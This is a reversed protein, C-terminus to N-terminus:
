PSPRQKEGGSLMGIKRSTAEPTPTERGKGTLEEQRGGKKEGKGERTDGCDRKGQIKRQIEEVRFGPPRYTCAASLPLRFSAPLRLSKYAGLSMIEENLNRKKKKKKEHIFHKWIGKWGCGSEMGDRFYTANRQRVNDTMKSNIASQTTQRPKVERTREGKAQPKLYRM